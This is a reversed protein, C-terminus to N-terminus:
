KRKIEDSVAKLELQVSILHNLFRDFNEPTMQFSIKEDDSKIMEFLVCPEYHLIEPKYDKIDMKGFDFRDKIVPKLVVTISSTKLFSSGLSVTEEIKFFLDYKKSLGSIKVLRESLVEENKILESYCEKFDEIFNNVENEPDRFIKILKYIRAIVNNIKEPAEGTKKAFLITLENKISPFSKQNYFWTFIEDFLENSAEQLDKFEEKDEKDLTNILFFNTKM